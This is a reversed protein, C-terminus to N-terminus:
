GRQFDYYPERFLKRGDYLNRELTWSLNTFKHFVNLVQYDIKNQCTGAM